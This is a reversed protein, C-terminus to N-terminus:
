GNELFVIALALSVNEGAVAPQVGTRLVLAPEMNCAAQELDRDQLTTCKRCIGNHMKWQGATFQRKGKTTNCCPCPKPMKISSLIDQKRLYFLSKNKNCKRPIAIKTKINGDNIGGERATLINDQFVPGARM